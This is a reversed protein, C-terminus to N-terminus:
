IPCDIHVQINCESINLDSNDFYSVHPYLDRPSKNVIEIGYAVEEDTEDVELFIIDDKLINGGVTYRDKSTDFPGNGGQLRYFRIDIMQRFKTDSISFDLCHHYHAVRHLLSAADNIQLNSNPRIRRLGHRTVRDDLSNFVLRKGGEGTHTDVEVSAGKRDSVQEFSIGNPVAGLMDLSKCVLDLGEKDMSKSVFLKPQATPGPKTQVAYVTSKIKSSDLYGMELESQFALVNSAIMKGIEQGPVKHTAAAEDPYIDFEAGVSVGHM